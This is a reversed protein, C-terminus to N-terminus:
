NRFSMLCLCCPHLFETPRYKATTKAREPACGADPCCCDPAFVHFNDAQPCGGDREPHRPRFHAATDTGSQLRRCSDSLFAQSSACVRALDDLWSQRETQVRCLKTRCARCPAPGPSLRRQRQHPSPQRSIGPLGAHRRILSPGSETTCLTCERELWADFGDDNVLPNLRTSLPYGSGPVLDSHAMRHLQRKPLKRRGFAM